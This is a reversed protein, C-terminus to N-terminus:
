LSGSRPIFALSINLRHRRSYPQLLFAEGLQTKQTYENEQPATSLYVINVIAFAMIEIGLEIYTFHQVLGDLYLGGLRVIIFGFTLVVTLLLLQRSKLWFLLILWSIGFTITMGMMVRFESKSQPSTLFM